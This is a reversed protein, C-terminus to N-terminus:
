HQRRAAACRHCPVNGRWLGGSWRMCLVGRRRHLHCLLTPCHPVSGWARLAAWAGWKPQDTDLHTGALKRLAAASVSPMGAQGALAFMLMGGAM